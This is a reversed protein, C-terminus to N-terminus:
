PGKLADCLSARADDEGPSGQVLLYAEAAHAVKLLQRLDAVDMACTGAIAGNDVLEAFEDYADIWTQRQRPVVRARMARLQEDFTGGKDM